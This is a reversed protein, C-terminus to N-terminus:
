RRGRSAASHHHRSLHGCTRAYRSASVSAASVSSRNLPSAAYDMGAPAMGAGSAFWRTEYFENYSPIYSKPVIGCIGSEGSIVIACNYLASRHRVPAGAVVTIKKGACHAAIARVGEEARDVLLNQGFLDGCSYGTVCLEPFVALSVEESCARDIMGCIGKVNAEVDAVRVVPVAAATRIFGYDKM